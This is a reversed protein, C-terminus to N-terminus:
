RDEQLASLLPAKLTARVATMGALLGVALVVALTAILSGLQNLLMQSLSSMYPWLSVFPISSAQVFLHPAVAVLAAMLGAGLGAVLLLANELMVMTALMSRRFGAARMLALEGRREIVSRLQVAALGFTGLLLGLGGLSQFTSLYTNQVALLEALRSGTTEAALGYDGLTRELADRVATTNEPTSEVLFLRYGSVEPFHRLFAEEGILLDGQFISGALLGVVELKLPKGFGDSIALKEGVGGYLHLAYMATNKDLIVPVAPVDAAPPADQLRLWPNRKAFGGRDILQRPVGLVRPQRSRYLNLCSADDGPKVRLAIVNTSSLLEDDAKSFGLEARGKPTGLDQYIPQDSEAILAFGGDGSPLSPAKGTPDLRFAGIAVILFSASAVLGISLTSRGPNHAANRLAMRLVNGRGVAVAAGTSGARLCGRVFTLCAALVLAGSGFFAGVRAEENARAGILAIAVAAILMGLALRGPWRSRTGFATIAETTQGALLRLPALRRTRWVTWLIVLLAVILGSFFGVALSPPTVYLRMFPTVMAALWWTRLGLLMLAAYGVGVPVGILSGLLAVLFGEGALLAAIRSRRLGVAALIGLEAARQDIGLRFMLGVLMVAAAIVFFSFAVFLNSFSMMGSLTGRSAELGQQRIPAFALGLAAPELQLKSELSEVTMGETPWVRISTTHGFRSPWLRRGTALSVFAKPTPGHDEWYADDQGRIRKADFPFPAEWGSMSLQDTVGPVKPTFNRDAAPGALQAIAALELETKDDRLRGRSSEPEFYELRIMDGPKVQLDDAAWSNLVIQDDAIPAIPEGDPSLFPGLPPKETFDVAAITSYPIERNGRAITNALYTFAPQPDDNKLANLIAREAAPGLIMQRSTINFYGQPTREVVLGFDAPRPKLLRQVVGSSESPPEGGFSKGGVFIANAGDPQGLRQQLSELSMYANLPLQQSPRLSFRGLGKTPIIESVKLRISRVTERKKGWASDAPISGGRPLRLMFYEGAEVALLKALAANLL